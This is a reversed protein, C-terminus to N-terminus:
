KDPSATLEPQASADAAAAVEAPEGTLRAVEDAMTGRESERSMLEGMGAHLERFRALLQEHSATVADLRRQAGESVAQARTTAKDLMDSAGKRASELLADSQERAGSVLGASDKSAQEIIAAAEARADSLIRAGEAAAAEKQGTIEDLALKMLDALLQKGEPSRGVERVAAASLEAVKAEAQRLRDIIRRAWEDVHGPHYGNAVRAFHEGDPKSDRRIDGPPITVNPMTPPRQSPPM